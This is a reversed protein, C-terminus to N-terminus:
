LDFALHQVAFRRTLRILDPVLNLTPAFLSNLLHCRYPKRTGKDIIFHKFLNGTRPKIDDPCIMPVDDALIYCEADPAHFVIYRDPHIVLQRHVDSVYPDFCETPIVYLM